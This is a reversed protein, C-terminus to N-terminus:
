PATSPTASVDVRDPPGGAAQSGLARVTIRRSPVGDSMLANRAAMARALSLRRASSPDDPSGAAYALITFAPPGGEYASHLLADLAATGEKGLDTQDAGFPIRLNAVAPKPSEPVPQVSATRAPPPEIAAVPPPGIPLDTSAAPASAAVTPAAPTSAAQAPAVPAAPAPQTTAVTAAATPPLTVKPRPPRPVPRPAPANTAPLAELAHLDVSVQAGVPFPACLALAILLPLKRM